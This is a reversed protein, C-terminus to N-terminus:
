VDLLVWSLTEAAYRIRVTGAVSSLACTIAVRTGMRRALQNPSRVPRGATGRPARGNVGVGVRQGAGCERCLWDGCRCSLLHGRGRALEAAAGRHRGPRGGKKPRLSVHTHM